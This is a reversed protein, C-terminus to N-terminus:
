GAPLEKAKQRKVVYYVGGGVVGVAGVAILAIAWPPLGTSSRPTGGAAGGAVGSAMPNVIAPTPTSASQPTPRVVSIARTAAQGTHRPGVWPVTGSVIQVASYEPAASDGPDTTLPSYMYTLLKLSEPGVRGATSEAAIASAADTLGYQRALRILAASSNPGFKGDTTIGALGQLARVLTAPEASLSQGNFTWTVM